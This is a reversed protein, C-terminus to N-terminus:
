LSTVLFSRFQSWFQKTSAFCNWCLWFQWPQTIGSGAKSSTAHTLSVLSSCFLCQKQAERKHGLEENIFYFGKIQSCILISSLSFATAAPSPLVSRHLLTKKQLDRSFYRVTDSIKFLLFVLGASPFGMRCSTSIFDRWTPLLPSFVLFIQSELQGKQKQTSLSWM